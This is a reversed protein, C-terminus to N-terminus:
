RLKHYSYFEAEVEDFFKKRFMDRVYTSLESVNYETVGLKDIREQVEELDFRHSHDLGNDTNFRVYKLM